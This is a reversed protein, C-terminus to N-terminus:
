ICGAGADYLHGPLAGAAANAATDGVAGLSDAVYQFMERVDHAFAFRLPKRMM